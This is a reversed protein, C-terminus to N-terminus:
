GSGESYNWLQCVEQTDNSNEAENVAMPRSCSLAVGLDDRCMRSTRKVAKVRPQCAELPDNSNEAENVAMPRSCSLAVGLDDRCMKGTRDVMWIRHAM